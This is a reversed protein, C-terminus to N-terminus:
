GPAVAGGLGTYPPCTSQECWFFIARWRVRPTVDSQKTFMWAAVFMVLLEVVNMISQDDGGNVHVRLRGRANDFPDFRRWVHFESESGLLYGGM